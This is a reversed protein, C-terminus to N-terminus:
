HNKNAWVTVSGLYPVRFPKGFLRINKGIVDEYAVPSDENFNADGKTILDNEHLEKVRHITFTGNEKNRYVIIDGVNLEDRDVGKILVLDGEKLAPWMSGSTISAMPYPTHLLESLLKPLGWVTGAVIALYIFLNVVISRFTKM